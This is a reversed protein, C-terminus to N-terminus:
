GPPTSEAGKPANANLAVEMEDPSILNDHDADIANWDRVEGASILEQPTQMGEPLDSRMNRDHARQANLDMTENSPEDQAIAGSAFAACLLAAAVTLSFRDMM